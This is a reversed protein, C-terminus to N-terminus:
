CGHLSMSLFISAIIAMIAFTSALVCVVMIVAEAGCTRPRRIGLYIAGLLALIGNGAPGYIFATALAGYSRDAGALAIALFTWALVIAPFVGSFTFATFRPKASHNAAASNTSTPPEYPNDQMASPQKRDAPM